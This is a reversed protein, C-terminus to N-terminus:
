ESDKLSFYLGVATMGLAPILTMLGPVTNNSTMLNVGFGIGLNSLALLIAGTRADVKKTKYGGVYTSLTNLDNKLSTNEDLLQKYYHIVMTIATKNNTLEDVTLGALESTSLGLIHTERELVEKKTDRNESSTM